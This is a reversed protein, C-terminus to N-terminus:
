NLSRCISSGPVVPSVPSQLWLRCISSGRVLVVSVPAVAPAVLSLLYQLSGPAVLRFSLASVPAVFSLYQLSSSVVSVPAVFSLLYQLLLRCGVVVPAVLPLYQLWSRCLRRLVVSVPSQHWSRCISFSSGSGRVVSVVQAV